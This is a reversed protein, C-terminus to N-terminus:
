SYLRSCMSCQLNEMTIVLKQSQLLRIVCPILVLIRNCDKDPLSPPVILVSCLPGKNERMIGPNRVHATLHKLGEKLVPNGHSLQKRSFELERTSLNIEKQMSWLLWNRISSHSWQGRKFWQISGLCERAKLKLFFAWQPSQNPLSM